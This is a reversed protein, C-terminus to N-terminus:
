KLTYVYLAVNCFVWKTFDYVFCLLTMSNLLFGPSTLHGLPYLCKSIILSVAQAQAWSGLKQLTCMLCVFVCLHLFFFFLNVCFDRITFSFFGSFGCYYHASFFTREVAM